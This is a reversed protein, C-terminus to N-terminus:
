AIDHDEGYIEAYFVTFFLSCLFKVQGRTLERVAALDVATDHCWVKKLGVCSVLPLLSAESSIGWCHLKVLNKLSSLPSLNAICPCLNIELEELASCSSLPSLDDLHDNGGLFLEKLFPCSCFPSLDKVSPMEEDKQLVFRELRLMHSVVSVDSISSNNIVLVAMM